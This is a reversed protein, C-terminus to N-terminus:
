GYCNEKKRYQTKITNLKISQMHQIPSWQDVILAVHNTTWSKTTYFPEFGM